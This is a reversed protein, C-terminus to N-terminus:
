NVSCKCIKIKGFVEYVSSVCCFHFNQNYVVSILHVCAPFLQSHAGGQSEVRSQFNGSLVFLRYRFCCSVAELM